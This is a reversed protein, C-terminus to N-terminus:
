TSLSQYFDAKHLITTARSAIARWNITYIAFLILVIFFMNVFSAGIMNAIFLGHSKQEEESLYVETFFTKFPKLFITNTEEYFHSEKNAILPHWSPYRSYYTDGKLIYIHKFPISEAAWPNTNARKNYDTKPLPEVGETYEKYDAYEKKASIFGLLLSFAVYFGILPLFSAKAKAMIKMKIENLRHEDPTPPPIKIISSAFEDFERAEKWDDTGSAWILTNEFITYKETLEKFDFPGEKQKKILIFYKKQSEM